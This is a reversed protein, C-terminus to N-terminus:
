KLVIGLSMQEVELHVLGKFQKTALYLALM